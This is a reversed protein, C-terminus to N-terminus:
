QYLSARLCLCTSMPTRAFFEMRGTLLGGPVTTPQLNPHDEEALVGFWRKRNATLLWISSGTGNHRIESPQAKYNWTAIPVERLKELVLRPDVSKLNDKSERDSFNSWAGSGSNLRVGATVNGSANIASAFLVGGTARVWFKNPFGTVNFAFNHSDAWAFCGGCQARANRGAAFSYPGTAHSSRGSPVTSYDGSAQNSSGGPITSYDGAASNSVGGGVTSFDGAANAFGGWVTSSNGTSDNVEGGGVTSRFGTADNGLGGGVTSLHGSADNGAGGGVTSSSGTSDNGSGGGVTSNDGSATNPINSQGGGGITAGSTGPPVTNSPHGLILNPSAAGPVVRGFSVEPALESLGM